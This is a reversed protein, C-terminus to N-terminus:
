PTVSALSSQGTGPKLMTQRRWFVKCISSLWLGLLDDNCQLQQDVACADLEQAFALAFALLVSGLRPTFPALDMQAAVRLRQFYAVDLQAGVGDSLPDRLARGTQCFGLLAEVM